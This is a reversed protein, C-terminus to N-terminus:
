YRLPGKPFLHEDTDASPLLRIVHLTAPSTLDLPCISLDCKAPPAGRENCFVSLPPHSQLLPPLLMASFQALNQRM